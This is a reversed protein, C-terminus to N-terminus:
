SRYEDVRVVDSNGFDSSFNPQYRLKASDWKYGMFLGIVTGAKVPLIYLDTVGSGKGVIHWTYGAPNDQIQAKTATTTTIFASFKSSTSYSTIVATCDRAFKHIIPKNVTRKWQVTRARAADSWPATDPNEYQAAPSEGSSVVKYTYSATPWTDGIARAQAHDAVYSSLTKCNVAKGANAATVAVDPVRPSVACSVEGAVSQSSTKLRSLYNEKVATLENWVSLTVNGATAKADTLAAPTLATALIGAMTQETVDCSIASSLAGLTVSYTSYGTEGGARALLFKDTAAPATVQTLQDITTYTVAM